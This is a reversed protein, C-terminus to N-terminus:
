RLGRVYDMARSVTHLYAPNERRPDEIDAKDGFRVGVLRPHGTPPRGSLKLFRPVPRQVWGVGVARGEARVARGQGAVPKCM